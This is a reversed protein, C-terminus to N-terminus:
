FLAPKSGLVRARNQSHRGFRGKLNDEGGNMEMLEEAGRRKSNRVPLLLCLREGEKGKECLVFPIEM